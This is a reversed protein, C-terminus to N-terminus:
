IGRNADAAAISLEGTFDGFATGLKDKSRM